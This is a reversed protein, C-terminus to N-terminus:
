WCAIGAWVWGALEEEEEREDSPFELRRLTASCQLDVLSSYLKRDVPTHDPWIGKRLLEYLPCSWLLHETTQSGNGCPCQETHGIRLKSYLHYNLRNHGTRLRFVTVQQMQNVYLHYNPRNHGTRLRFVTVQERRTLLYYPNSVKTHLPCLHDPVSSTFPNSACADLATHVWTVCVRTQAHQVWGRKYEREKSLLTLFSSFSPSLSQCCFFFFCFHPPSPSLPPFSPPLSPPPLSLPSLPLSSPSLSPPSLSLPSLSSPPLSLPPCLFSPPLILSLSSHPPPPPPPSLSLVSPSLLLLFFSPTLSLLPSFSLSSPFPPPPPPSLSLLPPPPQLFRALTFSSFALPIFHSASQSSEVTFCIYTQLM